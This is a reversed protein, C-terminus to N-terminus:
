ELGELAYCIFTWFWVTHCKQKPKILEISNKFSISMLDHNFFRLETM